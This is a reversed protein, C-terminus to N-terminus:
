YTEFSVPIVEVRPTDQEIMVGREKDRLVVKDIWTRCRFRVPEGTALPAVTDFASVLQEDIQVNDASMAPAANAGPLSVRWVVLMGILLATAPVLWRMLWASLEFGASPRVRIPPETRAARMAAPQAAKLRAMFDEPPRAPVVRRLEAELHELEMDNM